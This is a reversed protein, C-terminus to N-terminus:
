KQGKFERMTRLNQRSNVLSISSLNLAIKSVCKSNISVNAGFKAFSRLNACLNTRLNAFLGLNESLKKLFEAM